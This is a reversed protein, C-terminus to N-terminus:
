SVLTVKLYSNVKITSTGSTVKLHQITLNGGSAGSTIITGKILATGVSGSFTVFTATASNLASIRKSQMSNAALPGIIGAELTAATGTYQIGYQNGNSDSSSVNLLAEFEYTHNTALAISLGTVDALSQGTTTADSSTVFARVPLQSMNAADTSTLGPTGAALNIIKQNQMSFTGAAQYGVFRWNGSGLSKMVVTDGANVILNAAGPMILSSGNHTITLTGNFTLWFLAGYQVTGFATITTTGTVLICNGTALALNVTPASAIDAGQKLIIPGTMPASGDLPLINNFNVDLEECGNQSGMSTIFNTYLSTAM